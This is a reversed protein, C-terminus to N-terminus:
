SKGKNRAKYLIIIILAAVAIVGAALLIYLFGTNKNEQKSSGQDTSQPKETVSNNVPEINVLVEISKCDYTARIRAQGEKVAKIVGDKEVTVINEGEIVEFVSDGTIDSSDGYPHNLILKLPKSDGAKLSIEEAELSLGNLNKWNIGDESNLIIGEDGVAVFKDKSYVVDKLYKRTANVEKQWSGGDPLTFIKGSNAAALLRNEAWIVSYICDASDTGEVNNIPKSDGYDKWTVGDDSVWINLHDGVVIYKSGNWTVDTFMITSSQESKAQDWTIGDESTLILMGAGVAIYRGNVWRVRYIRESTAMRRQKWIQGDKSILVIGDNGAVVFEKGNSAAGSLDVKAELKAKVWEVGDASTLITGKDGVAVFMGLGWVIGNLKEQVPSTRKSWGIGDDSTVIFGADGVAAYVGSDSRAISQLNPAPNNQAFATTSLVILALIILISVLRKM